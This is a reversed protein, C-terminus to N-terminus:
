PCFIQDNSYKHLIGSKEPIKRKTLLCMLIPRIAMGSYILIYSFIYLVRCKELEKRNKM